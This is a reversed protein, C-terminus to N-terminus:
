PVDDLPRGVRALAAAVTVSVVIGAGITAVLAIASRQGGRRLLVGALRPPAAPMLHFILGTAAALAMWTM